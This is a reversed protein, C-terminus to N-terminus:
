AAFEVSTRKKKDRSVAPKLGVWLSVTLKEHGVRAAPALDRQREVAVSADKLWRKIQEPRLASAAIRRNSACSNSSM